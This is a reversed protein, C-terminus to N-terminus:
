KARADKLVPRGFAKAIAERSSQEELAMARETAELIARDIKARRAGFREAWSGKDRAAM